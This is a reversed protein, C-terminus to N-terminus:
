AWLIPVDYAALKRDVTVLTLGETRAQAVLMRDFPDAHHPPLTGAEEAHRFSIDLERFGSLRAGEAVSEPPAPMKVLAAKIAIEWAVVASVFCANEPRAIADGADHQLRHGGAMWWLFVHTDLLLM